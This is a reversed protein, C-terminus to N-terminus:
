SRFLNQLKVVNLSFKLIVICQLSGHFYLSDIKDIPAIKDLFLICYTWSLYYIARYIINAYKTVLWNQFWARIFFNVINRALM